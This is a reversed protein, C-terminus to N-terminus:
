WDWGQSSGPVGHCVHQAERGEEEGGSTQVLGLRWAKGLDLRTLERFGLRGLGEGTGLGVLDM